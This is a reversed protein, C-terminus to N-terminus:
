EYFFSGRASCWARKIVNVRGTDLEYKAAVVEVERVMGIDLGKSLGKLVAKASVVINETIVDEVGQMSNIQNLLAMRANERQRALRARTIGLSDQSQLRYNGAEEPESGKSLQTVVHKLGDGSHAVHEVATQIAGMLTTIPNVSLREIGRPGSGSRGSVSQVPTSNAPSPSAAHAASEHGGRGSGGEGSDGDEAAPRGCSCLRSLLGGAGGAAKPSTSPVIRGPTVAPAASAAAFPSRPTTSGAAKLAPAGPVGESSTRWVDPVPKLGGLSAVAAPPSQRDPHQAWRQVAGAVTMCRSHGLVVVLRAGLLQICNMISGLVFDNVVNGAVRVVYIDGLGQDFVM